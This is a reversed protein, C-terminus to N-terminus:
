RLWGRRKIYWLPLLSVILTLGISMPFGHEWSLEPMVSFNMGYLSAVLTPPLFVATIITFVKVIQNQTVNLSALIANQLYRVKEHEFAAHEKVGGIDGRLTRVLAQRVADNEAVEADLYRAARALGLQSELCRSILEEMNNLNTMIASVDAVSVEQGTGLSGTIRAIDDSSDELANGIAAMVKSAQENLVHLVLILLSTTDDLAEKHRRIHRFAADFPAFREGDQVTILVDDRLIILLKERRAVKQVDHVMVELPLFLNDDDSGMETTLALDINRAQLQQTNAQTMGSLRLWIKDAPTEPTM